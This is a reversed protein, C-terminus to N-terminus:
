PHKCLCPTRPSLETTLDASLRAIWTVVSPECLRTLPFTLWAPAILVLPNCRNCTTLLDIVLQFRTTPLHHGLKSGSAVCRERGRVAPVHHNYTM